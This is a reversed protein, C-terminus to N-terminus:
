PRFNLFDFQLHAKLPVRATVVLVSGGIRKLVESHIEAAKEPAVSVYPDDLIALKVKPIVALAAALQVLRKMGQSMKGLLLEGPVGVIELVDEASDGAGYFSALAEVYEVAKVREPVDVTEPLFFIKDRAKVNPIGDVFVSGSIQRLLTALTKALTSKGVGNPGYFVAAEGSGLRFSIPRTLPKGYGIVLDRVELM